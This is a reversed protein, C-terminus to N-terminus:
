PTLAQSLQATDYELMAMYNGCAPLEGVNQCLIVTKAGARRAVQDAAERSQYSAQVVAQAHRQRLYDTVWGLQKPTPPIGPKPELFHEMRLGTFQMLYPWENHYGIVEQGKFPALRQQWEPIKADLQQVLQQLNREYAPAHPPDIDSLKDAIEQAIIKGNDPSMWYHPNGYLHMDGEARSVPHDPIELLQVGRSLDLERSGGPMVDRHSAADLLPGRWLELDLGSHIFLEARQVKLVDSPKPEIFHPNFKPSAVYSVEVRDGGITKALDAYTSLTTVVRLRQAADVTPLRECWILASLVLIVQLPRKM